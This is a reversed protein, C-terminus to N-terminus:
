FKFVQSPNKVSRRERRDGDIYYRKGNLTVIPLSELYKEDPEDIMDPVAGGPNFVMAKAKDFEDWSIFVPERINGYIIDENYQSRYYGNIEIGEKSIDMVVGATTGGMSFRKVNKAIDDSKYFPRPNSM